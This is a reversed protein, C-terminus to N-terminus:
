AAVAAEKAADIGALAMTAAFTAQAIQTMGCAMAQQADYMAGQWRIKVNAKLCECLTAWDVKAETHKDLWERAGRLAAKMAADVLGHTTADNM